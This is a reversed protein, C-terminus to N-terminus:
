HLLNTTWTSSSLYRRVNSTSIGEPASRRSREPPSGLLIVPIGSRRALRNILEVGNMEPMDFDTIVIEIPRDAAKETEIAKIAATASDVAIATHGLRAPRIMADQVKV